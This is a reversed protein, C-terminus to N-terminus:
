VCGPWHRCRVDRRFRRASNLLCPGEAINRTHSPCCRRGPEPAGKKSLPLKGDCGGHSGCGTSSRHIIITNGSERLPAFDWESESLLSYNKGTKASIWKVYETANVWSM